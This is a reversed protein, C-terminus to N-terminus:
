CSRNLILVFLKLKSILVFDRNRPEEDSRHLISLQNREIWVCISSCLDVIVSRLVCACILSCRDGFFSSSDFFEFVLVRHLWSWLCFSFFRACILHEFFESLLRFDFLFIPCSEWISALFWFKFILDSIFARLVWHFPSSASFCPPLFFFDSVM